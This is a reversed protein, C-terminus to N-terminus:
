PTFRYIAGAQDDSVYLSGDPGPVADVVRGWRQGSATQFGSIITRPAGLTRTKANWPMWLVAPARPPQRDWSGHVAVIAGGSWPAGLTSYELFHFGLPASHAPIGVQLRPLKACNLQSGHPNTQEDDIFPLDTYRFTTFESGPSVDPDADCYPWGLNRGATIKAVQDTPHNDVYAGVVSAYADGSDAYAHDFPYAIQDRGNVATWVAGDPDVSLGDGNRVGTAVIRRGAGSPLYSVISARPPNSQAVPGANSGSGIDVYIRHGPGVVINKLTHNDSGAPATDPLNRVIVTRSGVGTGLWRYCDIEDDEAVYLWEHGGVRDFAMGQPEALGSVVTSRRPTAGPRQANPTLEVIKGNDPESVLLAGAPTWAELRADSATAWQEVHWGSPVTLPHGNLTVTSTGSTSAGFHTTLPSPALVATAAATATATATAAATATVVVAKATIRPKAATTQAGCGTLLATAALILLGSLSARLRM